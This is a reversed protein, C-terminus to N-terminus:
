RMGFILLMVFIIVILIPIIVAWWDGPKAERSQENIEQLRPLLLLIMMGLLIAQLLKEWDMTPM